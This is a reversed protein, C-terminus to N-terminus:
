RRGVALSRRQLASLKKLFKWTEPALGRVSASRKLAHKLRTLDEPRDVDSWAELISCSFNRCLLNRLTDRFAFSSSWRVGRFIGRITNGSGQRRLGILYYGGDPCPGLVADCYRLEGLGQRILRAPLTPSDTGIVVAGDHRALLNRLAEELRAGLDAGRQPVLTFRSPLSFATRRGALFLYARISGGLASAKRLTDAILAAQFESAGQAGLAPILRTKATGPCPGRAFIALAFAPPAEPAM